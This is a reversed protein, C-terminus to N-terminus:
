EFLATIHLFLEDCYQISDYGSRILPSRIYDTEMEETRGWLSETGFSWFNLNRVGAAQASSDVQICRHQRGDRGWM